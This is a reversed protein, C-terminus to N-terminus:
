RCAPTKDKINRNKCFVCVMNPLSEADIDVYQHIIKLDANLEFSLNHFPEMVLQIFSIKM